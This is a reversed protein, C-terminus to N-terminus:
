RGRLYRELVELCGMDTGQGDFLSYQVPQSGQQRAVGAISRYQFRGLRSHLLHYRMLDSVGQSQAVVKGTTQGGVVVAVLALIQIGVKQIVLGVIDTHQWRAAHHVVVLCYFLNQGGLAEIRDLQSERVICAGHLKEVLVLSQVLADGEAGICISVDHRVAQAEIM